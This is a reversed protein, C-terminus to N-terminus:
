ATSARSSTDGLDTDLNNALSLVLVATDNAINNARNALVIDQAQQFRLTFGATKALCAYAQFGKSEQM